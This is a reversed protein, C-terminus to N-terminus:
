ELWRFDIHIVVTSPSSLHTVSVSSGALRIDGLDSIISDSSYRELDVHMSVEYDMVWQNFSIMSDPYM